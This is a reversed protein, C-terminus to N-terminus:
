IKARAGSAIADLLARDNAQLQQQPPGIRCAASFSKL